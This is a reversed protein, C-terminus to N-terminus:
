FTNRESKILYKIASIRRDLCKIRAQTEKYKGRITKWIIKKAVKEEMTKANDIDIDALNLQTGIAVLQETLLVGEADLETLKQLQSGADDSHNLDM